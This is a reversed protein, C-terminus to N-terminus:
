YSYDYIVPIVQLYFPNYKTNTLSYYVEKCKYFLSLMNKLTRYFWVRDIYLENVM